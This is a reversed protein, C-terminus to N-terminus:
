MAAAFIRRFDDATCPRPNTQHCIDAVAVDVLKAIDDTGVRRAGAYASLSAPIGLQQKLRTLWAVFADARAEDSGSDGGPV